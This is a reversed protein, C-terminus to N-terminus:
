QTLFKDSGMKRVEFEHLRREIHNVKGRQTEIAVRGSGNEIMWKLRSEATVLKSRLRDLKSQM